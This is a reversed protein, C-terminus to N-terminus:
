EALRQQRHEGWLEAGRSTLHRQQEEAQNAEADEPAGGSPEKHEKKINKNYMM